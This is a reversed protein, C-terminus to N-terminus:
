ISKLIDQTKKLWYDMGMEKFMRESNNLSKLAKEYQNAEAQLEGLFLHGMSYFPKIRLDNCNNIGANILERAKDIQGPNAKNLIRGLWILSPAKIHSENNQKSIEFANQAYTQAHDLNGLDFHVMGLLLHILSTYPSIGSGIQMELSKELYKLANTNNELLYHGWGLGLRSLGLFVFVQGEELHQISNEFYKIANKGDGKIAYLSGFAFEVWGLSPLHEINEMFSITKEALAHAKKFNGLYAYSVV